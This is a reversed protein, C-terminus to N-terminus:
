SAPSSPPRDNDRVRKRYVAGCVEGDRSKVPVSKVLRETFIRGLSWM